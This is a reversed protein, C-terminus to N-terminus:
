ARPAAPGGERPSSAAGCVRVLDIHRRSTLLPLRRAAVRVADGGLDLAACGM